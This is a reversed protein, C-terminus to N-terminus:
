ELLFIPNKGLGAGTTTRLLQQAQFPYKAAIAAISTTAATVRRITADVAKATQECLPAGFYTWADRDDVIPVDEFGDLPEVAGYIECKNPNLSLGIQGMRSRLLSVYRLVLPIAGKCVGDDLFFLQRPEPFTEVAEDIVGHLGVSFLLPALPDGQQVGTTCDVKATDM